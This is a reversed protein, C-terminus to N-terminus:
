NVAIEIGSKNYSFKDNFNSNKKLTIAAKRYDM